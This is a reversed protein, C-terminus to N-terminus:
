WWPKNRLSKVMYNAIDVDTSTDHAMENSRMNGSHDTWFLIYEFSYDAFHFGNPSVSEPRMNFLCEKDPGGIHDLIDNVSIPVPERDLEIILRRQGALLRVTKEEKGSLVSSTCTRRIGVLHAINENLKGSVVIQYLPRFKEDALMVRVKSNHFDSYLCLSKGVKSFTVAVGDEDELDAGSTFMHEEAHFHNSGFTSVAKNYDDEDLYFITCVIIETKTDQDIYRHVRHKDSFVVVMRRKGFTALRVIEEETMDGWAQAAEIYLNKSNSTTFRGVYSIGGQGTLWSSHLTMSSACWDQQRYQALSNCAVINEMQERKMEMETASSRLNIARLLERGGLNDGQRNARLFRKLSEEYPIKRELRNIVAAEVMFYVKHRDEELWAPARALDELIEQRLYKLNTINGPALLLAYWYKILSVERQFRDKAEYFFYPDNSGFESNTLTDKIIAKAGEGNECLDDWSMHINKKPRSLNGIPICPIPEKREIKSDSESFHLVNEMEKLIAEYHFLTLALGAMDEISVILEDRLMGCTAEAMLWLRRVGSLDRCPSDFKPSITVDGLSNLPVKGLREQSFTYIIKDHDFDSGKRISPYGPGERIRPICHWVAAGPQLYPVMGAYSNWFGNPSPYRMGDHWIESLATVKDWRFFHPRNIEKIEALTLKPQRREGIKTPKSRPNQVYSLM